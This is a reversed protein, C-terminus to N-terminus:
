TLLIRFKISDSGNAMMDNVIRELRELLRNLEKNEDTLKAFLRIM